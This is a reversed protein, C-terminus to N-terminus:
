SHMGLMIIEIKWLNKELFNFIFDLINVIQEKIVGGHKEMKVVVECRGKSFHFLNLYICLKILYLIYFLYLIQINWIKM